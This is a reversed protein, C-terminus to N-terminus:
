NSAPSFTGALMPLWFSEPKDVATGYPVVYADTRAYVCPKFYVRRTMQACKLDAATEVWNRECCGIFSNLAHQAIQACALRLYRRKLEQLVLKKHTVELM